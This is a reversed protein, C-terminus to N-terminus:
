RIWHMLSFLVRKRLLRRVETLIEQMRRDEKSIIYCSLHTAQKARSTEDANSFGVVPVSASQDIRNTHAPGSEGRRRTVDLWAIRSLGMVVM